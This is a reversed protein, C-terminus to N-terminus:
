HMSTLRARARESLDNRSSRIVAELAKVALERNRQQAEDAL